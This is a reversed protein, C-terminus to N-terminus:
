CNRAADLQTKNPAIGGAAETTCNKKLRSSDSAGPANTTIQHRQLLVKQIQRRHPTPKRRQTEQPPPERRDYILLDENTYTKASKNRKARKEKEQQAVDALNQSYACLQM